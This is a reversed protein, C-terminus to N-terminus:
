AVVEGNGDVAVKPGFARGTTPMPATDEFSAAGPPMVATQVLGAVSWAAAFRGDGNVAVSAPSAGLGPSTLFQVAGLPGGPPRVRVAARAPNEASGGYVTTGDPAMAVSGVQMELDFAPLWAAAHAPVPLALAALVTLGALLRRM